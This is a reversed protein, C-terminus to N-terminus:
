ALQSSMLFVAIASFNGTEESRIVGDAFTAQNGRQLGEASLCEAM